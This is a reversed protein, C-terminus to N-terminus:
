VGLLRPINLIPLMRVADHRRKAARGLIGRALNAALPMMAFLGACRLSACVSALTRRKTITM